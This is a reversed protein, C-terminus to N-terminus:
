QRYGLFSESGIVTLDFDLKFDRFAINALGSLQKDIDQLATFCYQELTGNKVLRATKWLSLYAKRSLQAQYIAKEFEEKM